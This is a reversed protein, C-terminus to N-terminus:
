AKRHRKEALSFDLVSDSAVPIAKSQLFKAWDPTERNAKLARVPSVMLM